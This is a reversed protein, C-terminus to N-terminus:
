FWKHRFIALFFNVAQKSRARRAYRQSVFEDVNFDPPLQVAPYKKTANNQTKAGIFLKNFDLELIRIGHKVAM